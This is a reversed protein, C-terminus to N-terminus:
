VEFSIVGVVYLRTRVEFSIVGIVLLRVRGGGLTGVGIVVLCGRM